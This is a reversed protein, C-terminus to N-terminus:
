TVESLRRFGETTNKKLFATGPSITNAYFNKKANLPTM